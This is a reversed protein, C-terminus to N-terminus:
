PKLTMYPSLTNGQEDVIFNRKVNGSSIKELKLNKFEFKGSINHTRIWFYSKDLRPYKETDILLAIKIWGNTKGSGYIGSWTHHKRFSHAFIQIYGDGINETINAKMEVTLLYKEGPKIGKLPISSCVEFKTSKQKEMTLIPANFAVKGEGHKIYLEGNIAEWDTQIVTKLIVAKKDILKNPEADHPRLTMHPGQKNGQADVIFNRKVNGSSIKELKLNKYEFKGSINHTRIWFYSKDLRPYKETDIL